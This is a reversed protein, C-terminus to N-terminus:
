DKFKCFEGEFAFFLNIFLQKKKMFSVIKVIFLLFSYKITIIDNM